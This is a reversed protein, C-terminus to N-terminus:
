PTSTVSRILEVVHSLAEVPPRQLHLRLVRRGGARMAQLNSLAQAAKLTSFGYSSEPIPTDRPDECTIQVFLGSAPGGKHLQGTTHLYRPGYGVTTALRLQDRFVLRLEQLLTSTEPTPPVYALVALYDARLMQALHACVGDAIAGAQQASDTM